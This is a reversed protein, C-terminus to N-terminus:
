RQYQQNKQENLIQIKKIKVPNIAKEENEIKEVSQTKQKNEKEEITKASEKILKDNNEESKEKNNEMQRKIASIIRNKCDAGNIELSTLNELDELVKNYNSYIYNSDKDNANFMRKQNSGNETLPIVSDNFNGYRDLHLELYENDKIKLRIANNQNLGKTKISIVKTNDCFDTKFGFKNKREVCYGCFDNSNENSKWNKKIKKNYEKLTKNIKDIKAEGHEYTEQINEKILKCNISRIVSRKEGKEPQKLLYSLRKEEKIELEKDLEDIEQIISDAQPGTLKNNNKSAINKFKLLLEQRRGFKLLTNNLTTYEKNFDKNVFCYYQKTKTISNDSFLLKFKNRKVFECSETIIFRENNVIDTSILKSTNLNNVVTVGNINSNAIDNKVSTKKIGVNQNNNISQSSANDSDDTKKDKKIIRNQTLDEIM